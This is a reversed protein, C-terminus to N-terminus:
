GRQVLQSGKFPICGCFIGKLPLLCETSNTPSPSGTTRREVKRKRFGKKDKRMPITERIAVQVKATRITRLVSPTRPDNKNAPRSGLCSRAIRMSHPRFFTQKFLHRACSLTSFIQFLHALSRKIM